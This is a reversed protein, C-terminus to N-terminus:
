QGPEKRPHLQLYALPNGYYAYMFTDLVRYYDKEQASNSKKLEELQMIENKRFIRLLEAIQVGGPQAAALLLRKGIISATQIDVQALPGIFGSACHALFADVFDSRDDASKNITRAAECANM